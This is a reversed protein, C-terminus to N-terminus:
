VLPISYYTSLRTMEAAIETDSDHSNRVNCESIWGGLGYNSATGYGSGLQWHASIDNMPTDMSTVIPTLSNQRVHINGSSGWAGDWILCYISPRYVDVPTVPTAAIGNVRLGNITHAHVASVGGWAIFTHPVSTSVPASIYGVLYITFPNTIGSSGVPDEMGNVGFHNFYVSPRNGLAWHSASYLAGTSGTTPAMNRANGSTDAWATVVGSSVTTGDARYKRRWINSDPGSRIRAGAGFRAGAQVFTM